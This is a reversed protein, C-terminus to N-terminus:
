LTAALRESLRLLQNYKATRDGRRPGGVKLYRAGLGVALDCMATDETEGSRHSVCCSLGIARAKRGAAVTGSVTGIQNMKVVLGHALGPRLRDADTAFLDDGIVACRGDLRGTLRRWLPEHAPDFPDEVFEVAYDAVLREIRDAFEPGTLRRGEFRYHGDDDRLHEAAVDFGIGLGPAVADLRTRLEGLLDETRGAALLGSSASYGGFGNRRLHDREVAAFVELAAAMSDATRERGAVIMIQQFGDAPGPRHIGGSFVNVLLAPEAPTAGALEAFQEYLAIGKAAARSRCYALSLPLTAATGLGAAHALQVVLADWDAQSEADAHRLQEALAAFPGPLPGLASIRGRRQELRGPAIAAPSSGTGVLGDAFRVEAEVTPEGMSTLIGRLVVADARRGSM